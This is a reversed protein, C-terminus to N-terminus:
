AQGVQQRGRIPPSGSGANGSEGLKWRSGLHMRVADRLHQDLQNFSPSPPPAPASQSRPSQLPIFGVLFSHKIVPKGEEGPVGAEMCNDGGGRGETQRSIGGRQRGFM